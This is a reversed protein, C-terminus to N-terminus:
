AAVDPLCFMLCEQAICLKVSVLALANGLRVKEVRHRPLNLFGEPFELSRMAYRPWRNVAWSFSSCPPGLHLLMVRGELILGIVVSVFFADLLNYTADAMVDIPPGCCWGQELFMSTLIACGAFLEWFIRQPASRVRFILKQWSEPYGVGRSVSSELSGRITENIDSVSTSGILIDDDAEEPECEPCLMEDDGCSTKASQSPAGFMHLLRLLVRAHCSCDESPCDCVLVQVSALAALWHQLDPRLLAIEYYADLPSGNCAIFDCPNLWVSPKIPFSKCGAGVYASGIPLPPSFSSLPRCHLSASVCFSPSSLGLMSALANGHLRVVPCGSPMSMWLVFAIETHWYWLISESGLLKNM